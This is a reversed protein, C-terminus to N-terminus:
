CNGVIDIKARGHEGLMRLSRGQLSRISAMKAEFGVNPILPVLEDCFIMASNYHSGGLLAKLYFEALGLVRAANQSDETSTTERLLRVVITSANTIDADGCHPDDFKYAAPFKFTGSLWQSGFYIEASRHNMHSIENSDMLHRVCERVPRPVVLTKALSAAGGADLGQLTTVEILAQDLLETAHAPFFPANLFFRKIRSLQEGQPFLSLVKLLGFSRQHAAEDSEALEKIAKTLSPSGAQTSSLSISSDTNTLESIPIVELEKLTRDIRSPIGDTHRLLLGVSNPSALEVGGHEHELIYTRLDAEDLAILHVLPLRPSQPDRRCRILVSLNPCYELVVKVLDEIEQNSSLSGEVGGSPFNDFILLSDGSQSILECLQQFSCDLTVRIADLFQDPNKYETLDLRYAPRDLEGKIQRVSSIFGDSDMGWDAALWAARDESLMELLRRQEIKRVNAHAGSPPLYYRIKKLVSHADDAISRLALQKGLPAYTNSQTHENLLIRASNDQELNFSLDPGLKREGGQVLHLARPWLRLERSGHGITLRAVSYGHRREMGDKTYTSGFLSAAQISNRLLSGGTSISSSTAEHLHGFLHVDFRGAPNIERAWTAQSNHHLWQVPHHTVILNFAHKACWAHPDDATVALLQRVDIDLKGEYDSGDIQLWTSNLGVIGIASNDVSIEYSRDGPLLGPNGALLEIDPLERAVWESYPGLIRNVAALYSNGKSFFERHIETEEWWRRLLRLEPSLQSARAIDHNGPLVILKPSFGWSRFHKWIEDLILNLREFEEPSGRQTLDGSFIVLDWAGVQSVLAQMDDYLLHKLTPWLWDQDTIGM